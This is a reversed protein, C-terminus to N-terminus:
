GPSTMSTVMSPTPVMRLRTTASGPSWAPQRQCGATVAFGPRQAGRGGRSMGLGGGSSVQPPVIFNVLGAVPRLRRAQIRAATMGAAASAASVAHLEEDLLVLAGAALVEALPACWAGWRLAAAPWGVPDGSVTASTAGNLPGSAASPGM